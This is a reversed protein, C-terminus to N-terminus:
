ASAMSAAPSRSYSRRSSSEGDSRRRVRLAGPAATAEPLGLTTSSRRPHLGDQEYAGFLVAIASVFILPGGIVGLM